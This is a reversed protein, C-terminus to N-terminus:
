MMCFNTFNFYRPGHHNLGQASSVPARAMMWGDSARHMRSFDGRIKGTRREKYGQCSSVLGRDSM